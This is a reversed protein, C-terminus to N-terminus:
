DVMLHYLACGKAPLYNSLTDGKYIDLDSTEKSDLSEDSARLHWIAYSNFKYSQIDNDMKM